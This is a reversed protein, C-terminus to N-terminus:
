SGTERASKTAPRGDGFLVHSVAGFGEGEDLFEAAPPSAGTRMGCAM